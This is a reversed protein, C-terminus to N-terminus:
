PDGGKPFRKALLPRICDPLTIPVHLGRTGRYGFRDRRDIPEAGKRRDYSEWASNVTTKGGSPFSRVDVVAVGAMSSEYLALAHTPVSVPGPAVTM